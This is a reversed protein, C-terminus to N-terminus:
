ISDNYPPAVEYFGSNKHAEEANNKIQVALIKHLFTKKQRDHELSDQTVTVNWPSLTPLQLEKGLM